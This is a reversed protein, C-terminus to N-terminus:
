GDEIAGQFSGHSRRGSRAKPLIFMRRLSATTRGGQETSDSAGSGVAPVTRMRIGNRIGTSEAQRLTASSRHTAEEPKPILTYRIPRRGSVSLPQPYGYVTRWGTVTRQAVLITANEDPKPLESTEQSRTRFPGFDVPKRLAMKSVESLSYIHWNNSYQTIEQSWELLWPQLPARTASIAISNIRIRIPWSSPQNIRVNLTILWRHESMPFSMSAPAMVITCVGNLSGNVSPWTVPKEDVFCFVEGDCTNTGTRFVAEGWVDKLAQAEIRLGPTPWTDHSLRYLLLTLGM